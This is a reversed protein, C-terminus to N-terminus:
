FPRRRRVGQPWRSGTRKLVRHTAAKALMMQAEASRLQGHNFEHAIQQDTMGYSRLEDKAAKNLAVRANGTAFEPLEKKVLEEFRADQAVNYQSRAERQQVAGLLERGKRLEYLEKSRAVASQQIEIGRQLNKMIEAYRAPNTLRTRERAQLDWVEPTAKGWREWSNFVDFLQRDAANASREWELAAQQQALQARTAEAQQQEQAKKQEAARTEEARQEEEVRSKEAEAQQQEAGAIELLLAEQQRQLEARFNQQERTAERPNKLAEDAPLDFISKDALPERLTKQGFGDEKILGIPTPPMEGTRAFERVEGSSWKPNAGRLWEENKSLDLVEKPSMGQKILFQADDKQLRHYDSTDKAVQRLKKPKDDDYHLAPPEGVEVATGERQRKENLERVSARLREEESAGEIPDPISRQVVTQPPSASPTPAPSQVTDTM